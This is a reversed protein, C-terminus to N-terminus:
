AGLGSVITKVTWFSTASRMVARGGSIFRRASETVANPFASFNFFMGRSHKEGFGSTSDATIRMDPIDSPKKLFFPTADSSNKERAHSANEFFRFIIEDEKFFRTAGSIKSFAPTFFVARGWSSPNSSHARRQRAAM